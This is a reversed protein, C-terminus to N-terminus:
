DRGHASRRGSRYGMTFPAIALGLMLERDVVGAETDKAAKRFGALYKRKWQSALRVADARMDALTKTSFESTEM